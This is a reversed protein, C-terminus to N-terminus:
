PEADWHVFDWCVRHGSGDCSFDVLWPDQERNLRYVANRLNNTATCRDRGLPDVIRDPWNEDQFARLIKDLVRRRDIELVSIDGVCLKGAEYKPSKATLPCAGGAVERCQFDDAKTWPELLGQFLTRATLPVGDRKKMQGAAVDTLRLKVQFLCCAVARWRCEAPFTNRDNM